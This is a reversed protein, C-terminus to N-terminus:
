FYVVQRGINTCCYQLASVLVIGSYNNTNTNVKKQCRDMWELQNVMIM